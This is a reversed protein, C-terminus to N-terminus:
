RLDPMGPMGPIGRSPGSLGRPWVLHVMDPRALGPAHPRAGVLHACALALASPMTRVMSLMPICSCKSCTHLLQLKRAQM